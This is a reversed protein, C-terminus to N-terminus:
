GAKWEAEIAEILREHVHERAQRLLFRIGEGVDGGLGRAATLAEQLRAETQELREIQTSMAM